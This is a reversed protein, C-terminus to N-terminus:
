AFPDSIVLHAGYPTMRVMINNHHLDLHAGERWKTFAKVVSMAQKFEEDVALEWVAPKLVSARIMGALHNADYDRQNYNPLNSAKSGNDVCIFNGGANIVLNSKINKNKSIGSASCSSNVALFINDLFLIISSGNIVELCIM